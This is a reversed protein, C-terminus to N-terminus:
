KGMKIFEKPLFLEPNKIIIVSKSEYSTLTINAIKCLTIDKKISSTNVFM